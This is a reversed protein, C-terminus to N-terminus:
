VLFLNTGRRGQLASSVEDTLVVRLHLKWEKIVLNIKVESRSTEPPEEHM